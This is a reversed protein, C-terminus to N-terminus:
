SSSFSNFDKFMISNLRTGSFDKGSGQFLVMRFGGRVVDEVREGGGDGRPEAIGVPKGRERLVGRM